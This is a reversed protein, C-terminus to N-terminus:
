PKYFFASNTEPLCVEYHGIATVTYWNILDPSWIIASTDYWQLKSQGEEIRGSLKANSFTRESGAVLVPNTGETVYGVVGSDAVAVVCTQALENTLLYDGIHAVNTNPPVYPANLMMANTPPMPVQSYLNGCALTLFLMALCVTSADTKLFANVYKIAVNLILTWM